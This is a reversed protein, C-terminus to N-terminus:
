CAPARRPLNGTVIPRLWAMWRPLSASVANMAANWSPRAEAITM